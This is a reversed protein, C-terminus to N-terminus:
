NAYDTSGDSYQVVKKGGYTGTKVVTKDAAKNAIPAARGQLLKVEQAAAMRQEIPLGRDAVRGAASKYQDVDKDSQPGEFRPVNKVIDAAVVDLQASINAGNTSVGFFGASKDALAGIASSTPNRGLLTIAREVSNITEGANRTKTQGATDRVVDASATNVLKTENAKAQAAQDNTMGYAPAGSRSAQAGMRPDSAQSQLDSLHARLMAKSGEDMPKMLDSQVSKIERLLAKPDAGMGGAMSAKMQPETAYGPQSQGGSLMRQLTPNETLESVPSTTGDANQRLNVKAAAGLGAEMGKYAGFTSLAGQPASVVPMGDPGIRTMSTQGNTSTSLSPMFGPGTNNKDYAYGNTVQMDRAGHKELMASIGKGGNFVMDAQIAQDPIGLQRALGVLSSGAGAAGQGGAQAGSAPMQGADPRGSGGGGGFMGEIMSQQRQDKISALKRAEIESRYNEMQADTIQKKTKRDQDAGLLGQYAQVGGLLGQGFNQGGMLGGAMALTAMTRPDNWDDGLLGAM